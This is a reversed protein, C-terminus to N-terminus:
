PSWSPVVKVFKVLLGWFATKRRNQRDMTPFRGRDKTRIPQSGDGTGTLTFIKPDVVVAGTVSADITIANSASPPTLNGMLVYTGPATIAFPLSSIRINGSQASLARLLGFLGMLLSKQLKM